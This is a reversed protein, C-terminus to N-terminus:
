DKYKEYIKCVRDRVQNRLSEPELVEVISGFQVAWYGISQENAKVRVICCDDEESIYIDRGLWDVVDNIGNKDVRMTIWSSKGSFMYLHEAMHSPLDLGDKLEEVQNQPKVREDVVETETIKEVRFHTVNSYKDVNGILYYKGNAVVIQYPNVLQKSKTTHHLKKDAGYRNYFFSVKRKDEIAKSLQEITHFLYNGEGHDMREINHVHRVQKRFYVNSQSILKEILERAKDAPIHRSALVSDILLRLEGDEFTRSDLYYGKRELHVVDHGMDRLNGLNRTIAKRECAVGYDREMIEALEKQTLPHDVDTYKELIELLYLIYLKRIQGTM